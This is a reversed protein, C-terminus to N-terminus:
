NEKKMRTSTMRYIISDRGPDMNGIALSVAILSFIMVVSFWLIINFFVPYDKGYKSALNYKTKDNSDDTALINRTRRTHSADSTIVNVLVNGNYAKNFAANLRLIADNLLQKAEKTSTSNEGYLDVIAHLGNVRFWYIDPVYDARVVNQEIQAAISNLLTVEKLFERDEDVTLKLFNHQTKKPKDSKINKFIDFKETDYLGRSLDVKVLNSNSEPYRELIRKQLSQYIELDDENTRLPFHHGKQQDISSIGDVAVTVLAEALNFPDEIYLGQWNSYHETSFGLSASYIEKLTSEKVHDHGKFVLSSPHHLISLEGAGYVTAFLLTFCWSYKLM